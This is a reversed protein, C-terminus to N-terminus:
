RNDGKGSLKGRELRSQLKEVNLDMIEQPVFGTLRTLETWYWLVDGLEKAVAPRDLAKGDRYLRQLHGFLEGVEAVLGTSAHELTPKLNVQQTFEAYKNLNM